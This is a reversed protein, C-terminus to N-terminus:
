ATEAQKAALEKAKKRGFIRQVVVFFLPVFIVGLVTGTITGGLVASGVATRGGAGAGSSL